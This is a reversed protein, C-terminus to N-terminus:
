FKYSAGVRVVNLDTDSWSFSTPNTPFNGTSERVVAGNATNLHYFLYEARVSWHNWLAWELGGGLVYGSATKSLSTSAVYTSPPENTASAAYDVDAWAGGGTFYLLANPVVLYGIRGRVTAIWKPDVSMSTHADPRM